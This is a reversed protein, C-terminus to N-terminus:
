FRVAYSPLSQPTVTRIAYRVDQLSTELFALSSMRYVEERISTSNGLKRRAASYAEERSMGRGINDETEAELYFQLEQANESLRKARRFVSIWRM